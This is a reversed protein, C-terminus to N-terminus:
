WRSWSRMLPQANWQPGEGHVCSEQARVVVVGGDWRPRTSRCRIKGAKVSAARGRPVGSITGVNVGEGNSLPPAWSHGQPKAVAVGCANVTAEQDPSMLWVGLERSSRIMATAIHVAVWGSDTLNSSTTKAQPANMRQNVTTVGERRAQRVWVMQRHQGTGANDPRSGM